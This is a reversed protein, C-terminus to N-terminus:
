LVEKEENLKKYQTPPTVNDESVSEGALIPSSKSKFYCYIWSIM